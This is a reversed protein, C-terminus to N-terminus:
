SLLKAVLPFHMETRYLNKINFLMLAKDPATQEIDCM